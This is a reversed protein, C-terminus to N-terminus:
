CLTPRPKGYGGIRGNLESGKDRISEGLPARYM